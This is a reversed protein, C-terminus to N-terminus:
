ATSMQHFFVPNPPRDRKSSVRWNAFCPSHLSNAAEMQCVFASLNNAEPTEGMGEREDHTQGVNRVQRRGQLSM